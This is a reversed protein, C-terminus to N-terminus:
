FNDPCSTPCNGGIEGLVVNTAKACFAVPFSNGFTYETCFTLYSFPGWNCQATTSYISTGNATITITASKVFTGTDNEMAVDILVTDGPKPDTIVNYNNVTILPNVGQITMGYLDVSNGNVQGCLTVQYTPTVSSTTTTTTSGASTTANQQNTYPGVPLVATVTGSAAVIYACIDMAGQSTAQIVAESPQNQGAMGPSIVPTTTTILWPGSQGDTFVIEAAGAVTSTNQVTATLQAYDGVSLTPPNISLSTVVFTPIVSGSTYNEVPVSGYATAGNVDNNFDVASGWVTLMVSYNGPTAFAHAPSQTTSFSGDGFNWLWAVPTPNASEDTFQVVTNPYVIYPSFSFAATPKM